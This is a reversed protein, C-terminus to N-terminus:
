NGTTCMSTLDAPVLVECWITTMSEYGINNPHIADSYETEYRPGTEADATFLGYFNPAPISIGNTARLLDIEANFDRIAVSRGVANPDTAPPQEAREALAINVKALIPAELGAANVIATVIQQMSTSYAQRSIRDNPTVPDGDHDRSSADNMGYMVLVRQADPHENLIESLAPSAPNNASGPQGLFGQASTIGPFGANVILHPYGLVQTLQDNLLAPYGGTTRGDQSVIPAAEAEGALPRVFGQTISDGVAIYYDGVGVPTVSAQAQEGGATAGNADVVTATIAYEAKSTVPIASDFSDGTVVVAATADGGAPTAVVSVGWGEPIGDTCTFSAEVEIDVTTNTLQVGPDGAAQFSGAEPSAVTITCDATVPVATVTIEVTETATLTQDVEDAATFTVSYPIGAADSVAPVWNFTGNAPNFTAGAPLGTATLDPTTADADTATVTFNLTETVAISQPGISELVPPTNVEVPAPPPNNDSSGGGGGCASLVSLVSASFILRVSVSLTNQM